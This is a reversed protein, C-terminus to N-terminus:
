SLYYLLELIMSAVLTLYVLDSVYDTMLVLGPKISSDVVSANLGNNIEVGM